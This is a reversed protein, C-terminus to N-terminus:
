LIKIEKLFKLITLSSQQTKWKVLKMVSFEGKQEIHRYVVEKNGFKKGSFWRNKVPCSLAFANEIEEKSYEVDPFNDFLATYPFQLKFKKFVEEDEYLDFYYDLYKNEGVIIGTEYPIHYKTLFDVVRRKGTMSYYVQQECLVM